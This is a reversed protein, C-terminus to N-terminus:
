IRLKILNKNVKYDNKNHLKKKELRKYFSKTIINSRLFFKFMDKIRKNLLSLHKKKSVLPYQDNLWQQEYDSQNINKYLNKGIKKTKVLLYLPEKSNLELREGIKQKNIKYWNKKDFLNILFIETEDFGNRKDYINFFLEPSFQWFGHGCNNNAPLCHVIHGNIKCLNSINKLCETVNFVHESTGFDIITNFQKDPSELPINLDHIIDADEFSSYDLANLSFLNFYQKMLRDAYVNQDIQINLLKFDEKELLNNLRGITLTEGFNLNDKKLKELFKFTHFTLAM